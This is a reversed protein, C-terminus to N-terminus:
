IDLKLKKFLDEQCAHFARSEELFHEYRNMYKDYIEQQQAIDKFVYLKMRRLDRISFPNIVGYATSGSSKLYKLKEDFQPQLHYQVLLDLMLHLYPVYVDKPTRPRLQVFHNSAVLRYQGSKIAKTHYLSFGTPMGRISILYDNPQLLRQASIYSLPVSRKKTKQNAKKELQKNLSRNLKNEDIQNFQDTSTQFSLADKSQVVIFSSISVFGVKESGEATQPHYRDEIMGLKIDFLDDLLYAQEAEPIEIRNDKKIDLLLLLM